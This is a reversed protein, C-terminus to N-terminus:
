HSRRTSNSCKKEIRNSEVFLIEFSLKLISIRSNIWFELEFSDAHRSEIRFKLRDSLEHISCEIRIEVWVVIEFQVNSRVFIRTRNLGDFLLGLELLGGPCFGWNTRDARALLIHGVRSLGLTLRGLEPEVWSSSWGLFIMSIIKM